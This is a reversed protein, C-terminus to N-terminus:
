MMIKSDELGNGDAMVDGMKLKFFSRRTVMARKLQWEM